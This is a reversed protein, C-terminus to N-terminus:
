IKEQGDNVSAIAIVVGLSVTTYFSNGSDVGLLQVTTVSDFAIVNTNGLKYANRM